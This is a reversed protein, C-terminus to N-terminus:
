LECAFIKRLTSKAAARIEPLRWSFLLPNLSSNIFISTYSIQYPLSLSQPIEPGSLMIAGVVALYPVLSLTFIVYIYFTCIFTKRFRTINVTSQMSISNMQDEIQRQHRKVVCYIKYQLFANFVLCVCIYAMAIREYLMPSVMTVLLFSVIGNCIWLLVVLRVVRKVTIIERYRLHFCLALYREVTLLIVTQFSVACLFTAFYKLIIEYTEQNVELFYQQFEKAVYLPQVFLGVLLDSLALGILLVNSSSLLSPTRAFSVLLLANGLVATLVFPINFTANIFFPLTRNNVIERDMYQFLRSAKM